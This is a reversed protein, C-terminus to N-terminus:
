RVGMETLGPMATISPDLSAQAQSDTNFEVSVNLPNGDADKYRENIQECAYQRANLAIGRTAFVQDDNAAVEDAVLREKKDQNANNIGLMTMCENWLKSKAIMLNLVGVPDGGLDLVQINAPDLGNEQGYLVEVGEDIQRAINAYSLRTNENAYIIKAKRLLKSNAQITITMETLQEAYVEVIDVDPTRLMNAWIPVCDTGKIRKSQYRTGYTRFEVPNEYVNLAGVPAAATCFFRKGFNQTFAPDTEQYFVVLAHRFLELEVFRSDIAKPLGTWKFRNMALETLHRMYMNKILFKLNRQPNNKFGKSMPAYYNDWVYDRNGDTNSRNRAM